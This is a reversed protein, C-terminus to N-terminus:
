WSNAVKVTDYDGKFRNSSTCDMAATEDRDLVSSSCTIEGVQTGDRYITFDWYPTDTASNNTVRLGKITFDGFSDRDVRWGAEATYHEQEFEEGETVTHPTTSEVAHDITDKVEKGAWFLSGVIGLCCLVVAGLIIAVIIWLTRNSGSSPPQPAGYPAGYPQQGYPSPPPPPPPQTM